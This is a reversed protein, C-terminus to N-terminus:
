RSIELDGPKAANLSVQGPLLNEQRGARYAGRLDQHQGPHSRGLVELVKTDLHLGVEGHPVVELVMEGGGESGEDEVVGM